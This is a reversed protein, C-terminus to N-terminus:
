SPKGQGGPLSHDDFVDSSLGSESRGYSNDSGSSSGVSSQPLPSPPFGTEGAVEVRADAEGLETKAARGPPFTTLSTVQSAPNVGATHTTVELRLGLAVKRFPAPPSVQKGRLKSARM